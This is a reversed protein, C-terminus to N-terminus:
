RFSRIKDISDEMEDLAQEYGDDKGQTYATDAKDELKVIEAEITDFLGNLLQKIDYELLEEKSSKITNMIDKFTEELLLDIDM